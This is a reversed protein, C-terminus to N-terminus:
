PDRFDGVAPVATRLNAFAASRDMCHLAEELAATTAYNVAHIGMEMPLSGCDFILPLGIYAAQDIGCVGSYVAEEIANRGFDNTQCLDTMVLHGGGAIGVLRKTVQPLGPAHTYAAVNSVPADPNRPCVANGFLATDYGIVADDMGSIWLISELSASPTVQTSGTMPLIIRVGPETTLMATVCAGQSHGSIGLRTPDVRGALFGLSGSPSQLAQIQTRVDAPVDQEGSTPYGCDVTGSLQDTFHLGPYDASLVVFGRSAWHVNTSGSAIRLSATGHIMLVVPYPGHSADIPVDRYLRGGLPGVHKTREDPVKQREQPPLWDRIDYTVEPLGGTSGPEAPYVVEVTLRGITVTRVGVDWPGRLAPDEPLEPLSTCATGQEIGPPPDHDGV